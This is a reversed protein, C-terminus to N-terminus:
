AKKLCILGINYRMKIGSPAFGSIRIPQSGNFEFVNASGNGHYQYAPIDATFVNQEDDNVYCTIYARTKSDSLIQGNIFILWIGAAPTYTKIIKEAGDCTLTGRILEYGINTKGLDGNLQTYKDWLAKGQAASLPKNTATSTCNNIIDSTNVKGNWATKETDTVFRHSADQTIMSAAHTSPHSYNNASAAIGDLKKKDNASMLGNASQTVVGYTTNNDSGWAATGAASWRLIQGSAGGAPIHNNGNGSPHSYNNANAAIGDLKKKDNASMLGNASQSATGTGAKGNWNNKENDTVFRHSADQTIMSAAHTSPHSYNNANAAIGDLKAKDTPSMLGNASQTATGYTTNPPTQWTGDSRLYKTREVGEMSPVHMANNKIHEVARDAVKKLFADNNILTDFLANFVDAHNRDTTELKRLESVFEEPNKITFHAM